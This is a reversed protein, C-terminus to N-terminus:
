DFYTPCTNKIQEVSLSVLDLPTAARGLTLPLWIGNPSTSWYVFDGQDDTHSRPFQVNQLFM